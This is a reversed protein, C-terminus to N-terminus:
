RGVFPLNNVSEKRTTQQFIFDEVFRIRDEYDRWDMYKADVGFLEYLREKIKM